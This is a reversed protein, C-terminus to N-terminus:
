PMDLRIENTKIGVLTELNFHEAAAYSVGNISLEDEDTPYFYESYLVTEYKIQMEDLEFLRCNQQRSKFSFKPNQLHVLIESVLLKRKEKSRGEEERVGSSVKIEGLDLEFYKERSSEPKIPIVILPSEMALNLGITKTDQIFEL